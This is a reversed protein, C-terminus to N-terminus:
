RRGAVRLSVTRLSIVGVTLLLVVAVGALGSAEDSPPELPPVVALPRTALEAEVAAETTTTPAVTTTPAPAVTTPAAATPRPQGAPRPAAPPRPARPAKVAAPKAPRPAAGSPQIFDQTIYIVGRVDQVVAIGAVTFEPKMINARHGPSNMLAVHAHDVSMDMAVNEGMTKAALAARTAQTLYSANHWISGAGAMAQSQTLAIAVIDGRMTMPAMGAGAREANVLDLLRYAAANADIASVAAPAPAPTV